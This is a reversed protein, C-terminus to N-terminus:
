RGIVMGKFATNSQQLARIIAGLVKNNNFDINVSAPELYLLKTRLDYGYYFTGYVNEGNEMHKKLEAHSSGAGGIIADLGNASSVVVGRGWKNGFIPVAMHADAFNTDPLIQKFGTKLGSVRLGEELVDEVLELVTQIKM